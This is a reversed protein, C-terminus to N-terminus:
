NVSRIVNVAEALDFMDDGSDSRTSTTVTVLRPTAPSQEDCYSLEGQQFALDIARLEEMLQDNRYILMESSRLTFAWCLAFMLAVGVLIVFAITPVTEM